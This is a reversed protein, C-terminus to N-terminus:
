NLHAVWHELLRNATKTTWHIQDTTKFDGQRLAPLVLLKSPNRALTTNILEYTPLTKSFNLQPIYIKAHPFKRQAASSLRKIIETCHKLTMDKTNNIGVSLIVLRPTDDPAGSLTTRSLTSITAGPASFTEIDPLHPPARTINKINSDGIIVHQARTRPLMQDKKIIHTRHGSIKSSPSHTSNGQSTSSIDQLNVTLLPQPATQQQPLQEPSTNRVIDSFSDNSQLPIPSYRHQPPQETDETPTSSELPPFDQITPPTNPVPQNLNDIQEQLAVADEPATCTTTNPRILYRVQMLLKAFIDKGRLMKGASNKYTSGWFHDPVKHTLRHNATSLLSDRFLPVQITKELLLSGMLAEKEHDWLPKRPHTLLGQRVLQKADAATPANMAQEALHIEGCFAAQLTQYAHEASRFKTDSFTIDMPFFNSLPHDAGQVDIPPLDSNFLTSVPVEPPQFSPPPVTPPQTKSPGDTQSTHLDILPALNPEQPAPHNQLPEFRNRTKTTHTKTSSPGPRASKKPQIFDFLTPQLRSPRTPRIQVQHPPRTPIDMLPMVPKPKPQQHPNTPFHDHLFCQLDSMTYIRYLNALLSHFRQISDRTLKKGLKRRASALALKSAERLTSQPPKSKSIKHTLSLLQHKYHARFSMKIRTFFTSIERRIIHNIFNNEMAPHFYRALDTEKQKFSKPMQDSDLNPGIQAFHHILKIVDTLLRALVFARHDSRSFM